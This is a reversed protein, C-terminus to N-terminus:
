EDTLSMILLTMILLDDIQSHTLFETKFIDETRTISKNTSISEESWVRRSISIKSSTEWNLEM